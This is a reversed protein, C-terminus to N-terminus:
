KYGFASNPILQRKGGPAKWESELCATGEKQWYLVKFDYWGAKPVNVKPRGASACATIKNLKAVSKGSIWVQSGDNSFFELDYVGPKDFKIYGNIDAVVLMPKGSTLVPAGQGKDPFNLGPLPKGPKAWKLKSKAQVLNRVNREGTFYNVKLGQKVGTPQPNAPALEIVQASVAGGILLSVAALASVIFSKM